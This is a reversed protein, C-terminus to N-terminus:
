GATGDVSADTAPLRHLALFRLLERSACPGEPVAYSGAPSGGFWAHGLGQVSWHEVMPTGDGDVHTTLRCRRGNCHRLDVETRLPGRAQALATVARRVVASGNVASVTADAEGHFVITPVAARRAADGGLGAAAPTTASAGDRMAAFASPVDHAAGRPLGSHVGVAAFLEPHTEALILAMAAGASLGAVYIRRRDVAHRAAVDRVIGAIISPEAGDRAQQGPEYWRWCNAGNASRAQGPYAVIWGQAEALENMRTGRAFDDPNQKCGHLMVLLPLPTGAAAASPVFLKYGRRGHPSRHEFARFRGEGAGAPRAAVPTPDDIDIVDQDAADAEAADHSTAHAPAPSPPTAVGAQALSRRITDLLRGSARERGGLGAAALAREITRTIDDM